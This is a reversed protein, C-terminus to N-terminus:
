TLGCVVGGVSLRRQATPEARLPCCLGQPDTQSGEPWWSSSQWHRPSLVIRPLSALCSTPPFWGSGWSQPDGAQPPTQREVCVVTHLHPHKLFGTTTRHGGDSQLKGLASTMERNSQPRECFIPQTEGLVCLSPTTRLREWWVQLEGLGANM